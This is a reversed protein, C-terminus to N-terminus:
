GQRWMHTANSCISITAANGPREYRICVGSYTHHINLKFVHCFLCLIPDCTSCDYGDSTHVRLSSIWRHNEQQQRRTLPQGNVTVDPIPRNMTKLYSLLLRPSPTPPPLATSLTEWVCAM